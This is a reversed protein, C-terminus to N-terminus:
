VIRRWREARSRVDSAISARERPPARRRSCRPSPATARQGRATADIWARCDPIATEMPFTIGRMSFMKRAGDPARRKTRNAYIHTLAADADAAAHADPQSQSPGHDLRFRVRRTRCDVLLRGVLTGFHDGIIKIIIAYSVKREDLLVLLTSAPMMRGLRSPAMRFSFSDAPRCRDSRSLRSETQAASGHM